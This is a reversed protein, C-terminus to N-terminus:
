RWLPKTPKRGRGIHYKRCQPCRYTEVKKGNRGLNKAARVADAGNDFQEKGLCAAGDRRIADKTM